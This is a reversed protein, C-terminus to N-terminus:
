TAGPLALCCSATTIMMGCPTHCSRSESHLHHLEPAGLLPRPALCQLQVEPWAAEMAVAWESQPWPPLQCPRLLQQFSLFSRGGKGM